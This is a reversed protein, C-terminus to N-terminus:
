KDAAEKKAMEKTEMVKKIAAAKAGYKKSDTKAAIVSKTRAV